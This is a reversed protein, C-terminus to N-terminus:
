AAFAYAPPYPYGAATTEGIVFARFGNAPKESRFEREPMAQSGSEGILRIPSVRLVPTGDAREAREFLPVAASFGVM